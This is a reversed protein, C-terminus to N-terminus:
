SEVICVLFPICLKSHLDVAVWGFIEETNTDGPGIALGRRGKHDMMDEIIPNIPYLRQM